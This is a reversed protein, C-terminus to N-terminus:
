MGPVELSELVEISSEGPTQLHPHDKLLAVVADESDAQLISFGTTQSGGASGSAAGVRQADGVPSGLDVIADGAQKTWAEWADMGAQMQEPTSSAMLERAPTSSRYLVLFKKM